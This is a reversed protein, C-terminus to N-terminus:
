INTNEIIYPANKIAVNRAIFFALLSIFCIAGFYIYIMIAIKALSFLVYLGILIALTAVALLLSFLSAPNNKLGASINDWNLRPSRMDLYVQIYAFVLGIISCVVLTIIASLAPVHLVFYALVVMMVVGIENILYALLAKADVMKQYSIPLVKLLYFNRNERTFATTATYNTSFVMFSVLCILVLAVMDPMLAMIDVFSMGLESVEVQLMSSMNFGVVMMMIPGIIVAFFCYFALAPYRVIELFDKKIFAFLKNKSEYKQKKDARSKPTELQKSVSRRYVFSSIFYAFVFLGVYFLLAYVFNLTAVGFSGGVMSLALFKDPLLFNAIANAQSSIAIAIQAVDLSEETTGFSNVLLFYGIFFASALLIYVFTSLVGKNKFFSMAYMLPIAVITAVFLPLLPLIFFSAILGISFPLKAGIVFPVVLFISTAFSSVLEIVYVFSLKVAFITQPKIPYALLMENDKSFYITNLVTAIGFLLTIIQVIGFICTLFGVTADIQQAFAGLQYLIYALFGLLPLCCLAVFGYLLIMTWKKQGKAKTFDFRFSHKLLASFLLSFDKM